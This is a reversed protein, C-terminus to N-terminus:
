HNKKCRLVTVKEEVTGPSTLVDNYFSVVEEMGNFAYEEKWNKIHKRLFRIIHEEFLDTDFRFSYKWKETEVTMVCFIAGFYEFEIKMDGYEKTSISASLTYNMWDYDALVLKTDFVDVYNSLDFVSLDKDYIIPELKPIQASRMKKLKKRTM